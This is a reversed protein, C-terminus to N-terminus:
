IKLLHILHRELVHRELRTHGHIHTIRFRGNMIFYDSIELIYCVDENVTCIFFQQM